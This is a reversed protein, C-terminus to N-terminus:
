AVRRLPLRKRRGCGPCRVFARGEADWRWGVVTPEIDGNAHEYALVQGCGPTECRHRLLTATEREPAMTLAM